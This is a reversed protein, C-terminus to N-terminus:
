STLMQDAQHPQFLHLGYIPPFQCPYTRFSTREAGLLQGDQGATPRQYEHVEGPTSHM